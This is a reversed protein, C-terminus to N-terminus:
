SGPAARATPTRRYTQPSPKAAAPARSDALVGAEPLDREVGAPGPHFPLASRALPEYEARVRVNVLSGLLRRAFRSELAAVLEETMPAAAKSVAVTVDVDGLRPPDEHAPWKASVSLYDAIGRARLFRQTFWAFDSAISVILLDDPTPALEHASDPEALEFLHGRISARFGELGRGRGSPIVFLADRTASVATASELTESGSM